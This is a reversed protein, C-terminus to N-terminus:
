MLSLQAYDVSLTKSSCNNKMGLLYNLKNVKKCSMHEDKNRNYNPKIIAAFYSNKHLKKEIAAFHKGLMENSKTNVAM